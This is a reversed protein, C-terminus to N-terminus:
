KTQVNDNDEKSDLADTAKIAAIRKTGAKIVSKATEGELAKEIEAVTTLKEIAEKRLKAAEFASLDKSDVTKSDSGANNGKNPKAKAPKGEANKELPREVTKVTKSELRKAHAKAADEKYFKTGDVTEYYKKLDPNRKFVDNM